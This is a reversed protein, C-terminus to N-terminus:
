DADQKPWWAELRRGIVRSLGIVAVTVLGLTIAFPWFLGIGVAAAIDGAEDTSDSCHRRLMALAVGGATISVGSYILIGTTADM